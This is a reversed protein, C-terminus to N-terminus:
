IARTSQMALYRHRRVICCVNYRMLTLYRIPRMPLLHKGRRELLLTARLYYVVYIYMAELLEGQEYYNTILQRETGFFM